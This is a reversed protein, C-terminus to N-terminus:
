SSHVVEDVTYDTETTGDMEITTGYWTIAFKLHPPFTLWIEPALESGFIEASGNLLRLRLPMDNGVEIRLESERELKVQKISSSGSGSRAPSGMAVGNFSM